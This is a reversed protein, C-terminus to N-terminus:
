CRCCNMWLAKTLMEAGSSFHKVASWHFPDCQTAVWYWVIWQQELECFWVGRARSGHRWLLWHEVLKQAQPALIPAHEVLVQSHLITICHHFTNNELRNNMSDSVWRATRWQSILNAATQYCDSNFVFSLLFSLLNICFFDMNPRINALLCWRFLIFNEDFHVGRPHM